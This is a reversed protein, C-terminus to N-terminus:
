RQEPMGFAQCHRRDFVVSVQPPRQEKQEPSLVAAAENVALPTGTLSEYLPSDIVMAYAGVYKEFHCINKQYLAAMRVQNRRIFLGVQKPPREMDRRGALRLFFVEVANPRWEQYRMLIPEGAEMAPGLIAADRTTQLVSNTPPIKLLTFVAFGCFLLATVTLGSRHHDKSWQDLWLLLSVLGLPAGACWYRTGIPHVLELPTLRAPVYASFVIFLLSMAALARRRQDGCRLESFCALITLLLVPVLGRLKSYNFINLLYQSPTMPNQEELVRSTIGMRGLPSGTDQWFYLWELGAMIGAAMCFVLVGRVNRSPLWILLLLGPFFYAATERAAWALIYAAAALVLPLANQRRELWVLICYVAAGLFAFQFVSPWLQSGTQAMQPFLITLAAAALGLKPGKLKEAILYIFVVGISAYLFPLVYILAPHQGFVKMLAWIQLSISWRPTQTTWGTYGLGDALRRAEMWRHANDGGIDMYEATLFRVVLSAAFLLLLVLNRREHLFRDTM